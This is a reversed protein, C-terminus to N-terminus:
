LLDFLGEFGFFNFVRYGYEVTLGFNDTFLLIGIFILFVGGVRGVWKTVGSYKAIVHSARAYLVATILFPVALGLSFVALLLGGSFVTTSTSALLLVSALVPGVCPTWGLAFVSGMIFASSPKGPTLIAPMKLRHERMLPAINIIQLMMLGFIIIFVGGVQALVSRFQGIFSGFFGALMGFAIFILSFGLVFTIGNKVILAKAHARKSPDELDENKVGSIFALYAPVLPLTCPALFMFIGAVFASIVFAISIEIM